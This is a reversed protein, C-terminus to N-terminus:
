HYPSWRSRCEKGVRREESRVARLVLAPPLKTDRTALEFAQTLLADGALVAMAEGFVKHNTPKGRRLDDDDMCPLDDHILSYTHIMELAAAFPLAREADGCSIRCFEMTLAPRLRKGGALASYRMAEVIKEQGVCGATNLYEDLFDETQKAYFNLRQEFTM